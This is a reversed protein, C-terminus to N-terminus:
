EYGFEKYQYHVWRPDYKALQQFRQIEYQTPKKYKEKFKHWVYAIKFGRKKATDILMDMFAMRIEDYEIEVLEIETVHKPMERESEYTKGSEADKFLTKTNKKRKKEVGDLTWERDEELFGHTFVCNSHDLIVARDKGEDPRLGRGGMQMYLSLSKTPRVLQVCECAPVDFGETVIGVNSVIKTTGARFRKLVADRLEKPTEGDIHEAPIGADQYAQVINRSHECNIAFTITQRGDAKDRWSQVLDGYTCKENFAEYLAKENYDGATIKVKKLDFAIPNAFYRPKVLHGNEILYKMSPGNVLTDFLSKFGQGDARVPTATVGLIRSEPFAEYIEQYTNAKSHHAEDCIILTPHFKEYVKFKDLRRVLTQVAAIQYQSFARFTYDRQVVSFDIGYKRAKSITQDILEKRHVLVWVVHRRAKHDVFDKAISTFLVTKGAGTPLQAMIRRHTKFNDYIRNKTEQQYDRLQM